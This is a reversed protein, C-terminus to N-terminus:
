LFILFTYFLPSIENEPIVPIPRPEAALAPVCGWVLALTLLLSILRKM